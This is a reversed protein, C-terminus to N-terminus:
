ALYPNFGAKKIIQKATIENLERHRPIVVQTTGNTYIDHSGGNRLLYFGANELSKILIQRKM